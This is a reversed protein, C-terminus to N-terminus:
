NYVQQYAWNPSQEGAIGWRKNFGLRKYGVGIAEGQTAMESISEIINLLETLSTPSIDELLTFEPFILMDPQVLYHLSMPHPQEQTNSYAINFNM